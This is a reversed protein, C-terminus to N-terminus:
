AYDMVFSSLFIFLFEEKKNRKERGALHKAIFESGNIPEDDIASFIWKLRLKEFEEKYVCEIVLPALEECVCLLDDNDCEQAKVAIASIKELNHNIVQCVKDSVVYGDVMVENVTMDIGLVAFKKQLCDLHFIKEGIAVRLNNGEGVIVKCFECADNVNVRATAAVTKSLDGRGNGNCLGTGRGFMTM